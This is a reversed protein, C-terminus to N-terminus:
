KYTEAESGGNQFTRLRADDATRVCTMFQGQTLLTRMASILFSDRSRVNRKLFPYKCYMEHRAKEIDTRPSSMIDRQESAYRLSSIQKNLATVGRGYHRYTSFIREFDACTKAEANAVRVVEEVPYDSLLKRQVVTLCDINVKPM